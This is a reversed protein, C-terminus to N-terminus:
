PVALAICATVRDHLHALTLRVTSPTRTYPRQAKRVTITALQRRSGIAKEVVKLVATATVRGGPTTLQAVLPPATMQRIVIVTSLRSTRATKLVSSAGVPM